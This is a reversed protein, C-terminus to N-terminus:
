KFKEDKLPLPIDFDRSVKDVWEDWAKKKKRQEEVHDLQAQSPYHERLIFTYQSLDQSQTLEIVNQGIVIFPSVDVLNEPTV